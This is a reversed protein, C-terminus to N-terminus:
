VQTIIHFRHAVVFSLFIDPRIRNSMKKTAEALIRSKYGWIPCLEQNTAM